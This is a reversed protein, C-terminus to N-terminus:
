KELLLNLYDALGAWNATNKILSSLTIPYVKKKGEDLVKFRFGKYSLFELLQVPDNGLQKIGIPWYEIIIKINKQGLLRKAGSFVLWEAGQVDMNVVDVRKIGATNLYSDLTATKVKAWANGRYLNKVNFSHNGPNISDIFLKRYGNKDSLAINELIINTYKSKMVQHKLIKFNIVDPEFAIVRGTPGVCKAAEIAYVGSSAGIDLVTMGSRLLRRFCKLEFGENFKQFLFVINSYVGLNKKTLTLLKKALINDLLSLHIITKILRRQPSNNSEITM